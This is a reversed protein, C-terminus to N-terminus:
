ITLAPIWCHVTTKSVGLVKALKQQTCRKRLPMHKVSEWVFETPYMARRTSNKEHFLNQLISFVWSMHAKQERGYIISQAAHWALNNPSSCSVGRQQYLSM